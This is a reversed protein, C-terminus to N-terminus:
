NGACGDPAPKVAFRDAIWPLYYQESLGPTSFHDQKGPLQMRGVNAGAIACMNKRYIEHQIPPLTSDNDGFYILVPAVPKVDNAVSAKQFSQAWALENQRDSRM